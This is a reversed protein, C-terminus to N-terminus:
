DNLSTRSRSIIDYNKSLNDKEVVGTGSGDVIIRRLM